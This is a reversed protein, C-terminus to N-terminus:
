NSRGTWFLWQSSGAPWRNLPIDTVLRPAVHGDAYLLNASAGHAAAPKNASQWFAVNFTGDTLPTGDAMLLTASPQEIRGFLVPVSSGTLTGNMGYTTLLDNGSAARSAPCGFVPSVWRGGVRAAAIHGTSGLFYDWGRQTANESALPLHGRNDQVYLLVASGLQRLNSVCTSRRASERVHSVVAVLMGILVGIIAIVALLEVLTFASRSPRLRSRCTRM